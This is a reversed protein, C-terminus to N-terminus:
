VYYMIIYLDYVVSHMKISKNKEKRRREPGVDEHLIYVVHVQRKKEYSLGKHACSIM